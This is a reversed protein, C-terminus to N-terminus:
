STTLFPFYYPFKYLNKYVTESEISPRFTCSYSHTPIKPSLGFIRSYFHEKEEPYHLISNVLIRFKLSSCRRFHLIFELKHLFLIIVYDQAHRIQRQISFYGLYTYNTM